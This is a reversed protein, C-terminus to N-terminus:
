HQDSLESVIFGDKLPTQSTVKSLRLQKAGVIYWLFWDINYLISCTVFDWADDSGWAM